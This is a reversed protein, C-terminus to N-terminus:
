EECRNQQLRLALLTRNKASIASIRDTWQRSRPSTHQRSSVTPEINAKAALRALLGSLPQNELRRVFQMARARSRKSVRLRYDHDDILRELAQQWPGTNQDPVLPVPFGRDDFCTKYREIPRIPLLQGVGLSADQLGGYDSALVPIGWLMAEVAVLGFGERYLSPILLISTKALVDEIAGVPEWVEVNPIQALSRRDAKTTAWGVLAGFRGQPFRRALASFITIGKVMSPNIMTIFGDDVDTPCMSSPVHYVPPHVVATQGTVYRRVYRAMHSGITVMTRIRELLLTAKPNPSISDPGFPFHQPTHALYIVRSPCIKACTDLLLQGPDLSSVLVWTPQFRGILEGVYRHLHGRCTVAFIEVGKVRFSEVEGTRRVPVIGQRQLTRRYADYDGPGQPGFAPAIVRCTHGERTLQELWVRNAKNEGGITPIYFINQVLLINM